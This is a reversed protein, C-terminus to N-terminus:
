ASSRGSAWALLGVWLSIRAGHIIRSLVDRGIDDTGFPHAPSPAAIPRSWPFIESLEYARAGSEKDNGYPHQLSAASL